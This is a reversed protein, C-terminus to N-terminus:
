PQGLRRIVTEDWGAAALRRQLPQIDYPVTRLRWAGSSRDWLAHNAGPPGSRPLGVSGCNVVCGNSTSAIFPRHTHGVVLSSGDRPMARHLEPSEEELRSELDWPSAHRTRMIASVGDVELGDPLSSLWSKNAASLVSRTWETRYVPERAPDPRLRGVVFADHNGMICPISLERLRDCVENPRDGYGVVDGCCYRADCGSTAALFAELAELNAHVDSFFAISM